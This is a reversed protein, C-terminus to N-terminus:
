PEPNSEATKTAEDLTRRIWAHTTLGELEALRQIHTWIPLPVRITVRHVPADDGRRPRGRGRHIGM